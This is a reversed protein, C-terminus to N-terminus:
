VATKEDVAEIELIRDVRFTRNGDSKSDHASVGIFTKGLYDMEGVFIPSIVRFSKEDSSKLYVLRLKQGAEIAQKIIDIKNEVPIREDALRYQYGTVFEVVRWDMRIHRKEVPKKLVLGELSTCRSLAVYMQGHAFTGKGIDVIVRDFTKGQSKHITIAWALALPYQTFSGVSESIMKGSIEDIKFHFLEWTYPSVEVVENNDLKVIIVSTDGYEAISDIKGVTGNVWRGDSDNNLMMVQAGAKLNLTVQTPLSNTGFDGSIEGEFTYQRGRIKGLQGINLDGAMQNTTTLHISFDSPDSRYDAIVRTNIAELHTEDATNNRVANLLDIFVPDSQRYVKELEVFKMSFGAFVRADFFYQSHYHDKFIDREQGTVVPPLQYLDGIFVVQAGGFPLGKSNGNLRLFKDVCDLLDARVMSIEDIVITDLSKYIGSDGTKSVKKVKDPTVDPKFRFFSHITQGRINVAAVGTPALFVMNKETNARLYSLLTSKGTGARGTIFVNDGTEIIDLAKLFQRNLDIEM